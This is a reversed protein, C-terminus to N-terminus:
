YKIGCGYSPVTPTTVPKGAKIEELATLVYNTAKEISLPDADPISDIAGEYAIIGQPDIVFMHPTTKAGYLNGIEGKEDLIRHTSKAGVEEEIKIAEEPTVNGQKGPASSVISIWEAGGETAIAQTKQMNGSKYHKVVFPCEHNTWELVVNKGKLDSLKVDNGHIDKATFDPAVKGVEAAAFSITPSLVTPLLALTFGLIRIKNIM